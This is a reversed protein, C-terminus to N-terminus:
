IDLLHCLEQIRHEYENEELQLQTIINKGLEYLEQKVDDELPAFSTPTDIGAGRYLLLKYSEYTAETYRSM